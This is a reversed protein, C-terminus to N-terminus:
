TNTRKLSVGEVNRTKRKWFSNNEGTTTKRSFLISLFFGLFIQLDGDMARAKAKKELEGHFSLSLVVEDANVHTQEEGSTGKM